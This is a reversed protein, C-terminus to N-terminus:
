PFNICSVLHQSSVCPRISGDVSVRRVTWSIDVGKFVDILSYERRVGVQPRWLCQPFSSRKNCALTSACASSQGFHENLTRRGELHGTSWHKLARGLFGRVAVRSAARSSSSTAQAVSSIFSCSSAASAGRKSRVEGWRQHSHLMRVDVLADDVCYKHPRGSDNCLGDDCAFCRDRLDLKRASM